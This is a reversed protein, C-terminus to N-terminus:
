RQNIIKGGKKQSPIIKLSTFLIYSSPSKQVIWKKSLIFFFSIRQQLIKSLYEHKCILLNRSVQM